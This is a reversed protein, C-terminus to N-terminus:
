PRLELVVRFGTYSDPADLDEGYRHAARCYAGVAEWCGGRIARTDGDVPGTPDVTSLGEYNPAYWDSTFEWVNGHMEYLGFANPPYTGVPQTEALYVGRPAGGYPHRGDYNIYDTSKPSGFHFPTFTGARCAHEWEAETPLRYSRGAKREAPLNSLRRCFDLIMEYNVREVPHAPSIQFRAPNEGMVKEYVEQTVAFRDMWFPRTLTVARQPRENDRDEAGKEDDLSGMLFSGAPIRVFEMGLSNVVRQPPDSGPSPHQARWAALRALATESYAPGVPDLERLRTKQAARLLGLLASDDLPNNRIELRTLRAFVPSRALNAIAAPTLQNNSLDLATLGELHPSELLEALEADPLQLGALSLSPVLSLSSQAAIRRIKKAHTVRLSEILATGAQAAFTERFKRNCFVNSHVWVRALGRVFEVHECQNELDGLWTRAHQECEAECQALLAQREQWDPVWDAVRCQLRIFRARDPQGNDELWDALILRQTSDEPEAACGHLFGALLPDM